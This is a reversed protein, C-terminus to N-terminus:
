LLGWGGGEIIAEAAANRPTKGDEYMDYYPVDPLDSCDLGVTNQVHRNVKEMWQEFSM